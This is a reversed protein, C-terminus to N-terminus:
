GNNNGTTKMQTALWQQVEQALLVEQVPKTLYGDVGAQAALERHKRTGRSTIMVVPIHKKEPWIRIAQTLELGNMRPMELDTLVMDVAIDNMLKLADMGDVATHVRYGMGELILRMSKRNSLSDDVVLIAYAPLLGATIDDDNSAECLQLSGNELEYFLRIMDLVPAVTGDALVSAGQVSHIDNLWPALSSIVIDRSPLIEEVYVAHLQEASRILLLTHSQMPEPSHGNWHLLDALKLVPLQYRDTEIHWGQEDMINEEPSIYLLQEINDAPIALLHGGARVVLAHTAILTQPLNITFRMGKGPQSELQLTGRLQEIASQVVDMGVGRGSIESVEDRTSFGPLLVLRLVAQDPLPQDQSILGRELAKARIREVDMGAGDDAIVLTVHSGAQSFQLRITGTEAKGTAKRQAPTEIGHDVANRLLHLLPDTLGRLIDADVQLDQGQIELQAQKGTKRCTERIIREMRPVLNNVPSLRLGLVADSLQRQVRQQQYLEDSLRRISGQLQQVLERSDAAAETLLSTASYLDSYSEMELEDALSGAFSKTPESVTDTQKQQEILGELEDLHQRIQEDQEYLRNGLTRAQQLVGSTQSTSTILEGTLRLLSQIRAENPLVVAYRKDKVESAVPAPETNDAVPEERLFDPLETLPQLDPLKGTEDAAADQLIDVWDALAQLLHEYEDPLGAGSQLHDFLTELCDASAELDDGLGEPMEAVPIDLLDELRHTFRVIPEVGVVSSSGKLTHALRAAQKRQQANDAGIAILRILRAAESVHEPTEQMYADLLEPHVDAAFGLVPQGTDNNDSAVEEVEDTSNEEPPRLSLLFAQLQEQPLAQPWLPDNLETMLMPLHSVEEPERFILATIELWSFYKGAELLETASASQLSGSVWTILGAVEPLEFMEAAMGLREYEQQVQSLWQEASMLKDPTALQLAVEELEEAFALREEEAANM